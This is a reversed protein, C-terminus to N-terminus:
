IESDSPDYYEDSSEGKEFHQQQQQQQVEGSERDCRGIKLKELVYALKRALKKGEKEYYDGRQNCLSMTRDGICRRRNPNFEEQRLVANSDFRRLLADKKKTCASCLGSTTLVSPSSRICEVHRITFREFDSGSGNNVENSFITHCDPLHEEIVWVLKTVDNGDTLASM